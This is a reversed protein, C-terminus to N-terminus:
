IQTQKERNLLLGMKDLQNVIVTLMELMAESQERKVLVGKYKLKHRSSWKFTTEPYTTINNINKINNEHKESIKKLESEIPKRIGDTLLYTLNSFERTCDKGMRLSFQLESIKTMISNMYNAQTDFRIDEGYLRNQYQM